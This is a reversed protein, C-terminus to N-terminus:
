YISEHDCNFNCKQENNPILNFNNLATDLEENIVFLKNICKKYRNYTETLIILKMKLRNIFENKNELGCIGGSAETALSHSTNDKILTSDYLKFTESYFNNNIYIKMMNTICITDKNEQKISNFIDIVQDINNHKDYANM